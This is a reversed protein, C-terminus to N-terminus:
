QETGGDRDRAGADLPTERELGAKKEGRLNSAGWTEAAPGSEVVSDGRPKQQAPAAARPATRARSLAGMPKLPPPTESSSGGCGEVTSVVMAIAFPVSAPTKLQRWLQQAAKM